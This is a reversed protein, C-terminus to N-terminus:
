VKLPIEVEKNIELKIADDILELVGYKTREMADNWTDIRGYYGRLCLAARLAAITPLPNEVNRAAGSLCFTRAEASFVLVTIGNKDRAYAGQTWGKEILARLDLLSQHVSKM